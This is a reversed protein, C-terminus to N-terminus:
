YKMVCERLIFIKGFRGILCSGVFSTNLILLLSFKEPVVLDVFVNLPALASAGPKEGLMSLLM